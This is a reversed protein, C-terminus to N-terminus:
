GAMARAYAAEVRAFVARWGYRIGIGPNALSESKEVVQSAMNAIAQALQRRLEGIDAAAPRDLSALPPLPVFSVLRPDFAVLLERCGPLDSVVLRCGSALAELLVLPLGEYFSPLAFLHCRRMLAALDMQSLQGHWTVRDACQDAMRRCLEEEPGAGSGALHLHLDSRGLDAFAGLLLDVGKAFSLKGAYLVEVPPPPKKAAAFFLEDDFGAGVIDIKEGAIGYLKAIEGAQGPGLALVRTLRRCAPAVMRALDPCQRFQRLDTSHCSTVMPLSPCLERALATMLWLHHSHIIDPRFAAVAEGIAAGFAQRYIAIHRESLHGFISSVYPMVDSMGPIPFDLEGQGFRVLTCREAAIGALQPTMSGSVGAVMANEHGGAAARSIVQRLYIGSGTSQPHQSLLHLIRM